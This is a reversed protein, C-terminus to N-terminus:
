WTATRVAVVVVVLALVASLGGVQMRIPIRRRSQPLGGIALGVLLGTVFGGIHGWRSIDAVSFTIVFNLVLTAVLWQLDLGIKRVLVLGVGFLGFIAGSAGATPQLDFGFAYVAASGGLLSILYAATFRWRGLQTELFPGIIGLSLMNVAIHLVTLHLFGSTLLQYYDHDRHVIYPELQWKIFLSSSTPDRLTAPSQLGTALYAAVNLAILTVTMYPPSSRLMAGITSRPARVTRAGQQVDDPCHFGVSAPRM